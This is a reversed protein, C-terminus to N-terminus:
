QFLTAVVIKSIEPDEHVDLEVLNREHLKLISSTYYKLSTSVGFTTISTICLSWVKYHKYHMSDVGQLAQIRM